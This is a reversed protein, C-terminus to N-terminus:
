GIDDPWLFEIFFACQDCYVYQWDTHEKLKITNHQQFFRKVYQFCTIKMKQMNKMWTKGRVFYFM